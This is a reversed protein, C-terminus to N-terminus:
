DVIFEESDIDPEKRRGSLALIKGVILLCFLLNIM